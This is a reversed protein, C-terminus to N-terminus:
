ADGGSVCALVVYGDGNFQCTCLFEHPEINPEEDWVDIRPDTLLTGVAEHREVVLYNLQHILGYYPLLRELFPAAVQLETLNTLDLNGARLLATPAEDEPHNGSGNTLVAFDTLLQNLYLANLLDPCEAKTLADELKFGDPATALLTKLLDYYGELPSSSDNVRSLLTNFEDRSTLTLM